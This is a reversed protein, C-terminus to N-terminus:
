IKAFAPRGSRHSSLNVARLIINMQVYKQTAKGSDEGSGRGWNVLFRTGFDTERFGDNVGM